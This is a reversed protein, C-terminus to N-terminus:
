PEGETARDPTSPSVFADLAAALEAGAAISGPSRLTQEWARAVADRQGRLRAVEVNLERVHDSYAALAQWLQEVTVLEPRTTRIRNAERHDM